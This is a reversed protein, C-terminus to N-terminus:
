NREDRFKNFDLVKKCLCLVAGNEGVRAPEGFLACWCGCHAGKNDLPCGQKTFKNKRKISLWGNKDIKGEMNFNRLKKLHSMFINMWM